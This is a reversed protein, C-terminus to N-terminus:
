GHSPRWQCLLLSSMKKQWKVTEARALPDSNGRSAPCSARRASRCCSRSAHRASFAVSACRGIAWSACCSVRLRPIESCRATSRKNIQPVPKEQGPEQCPSCTTVKETRLCVWTGNQSHSWAMPYCAIPSPNEVCGCREDDRTPKNQRTGASDPKPSAPFDPAAGHQLPSFASGQQSSSVLPPQTSHQAQRQVHKLQILSGHPGSLFLKGHLYVLRCSSKRSAPEPHASSSFANSMM